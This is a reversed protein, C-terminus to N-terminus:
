SRPSSPALTGQSSIEATIARRRAELEVLYRSREEIARDASRVRGGTSEKRYRAIVTVAGKALVARRRQGIVSCSLEAALKHISEFQTPDPEYM